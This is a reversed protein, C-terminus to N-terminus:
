TGFAGTSGNVAFTFHSVHAVADPLGSTDVVVSALPWKRRGFMGTLVAPLTTSMGTTTCSPRQRLCNVMAVVAHVFLRTGETPPAVGALLVAASGLLFDSPSMGSVAIEVPLTSPRSHTKLFIPTSVVSNVSAAPLPRM